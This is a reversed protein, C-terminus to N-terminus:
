RNPIQLVLGEIVEDTKPTPTRSYVNMYIYMCVYICVYMYDDASQSKTLLDMDSNLTKYM